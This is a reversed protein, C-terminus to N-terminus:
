PLYAVVQYTGTPSAPQTAYAIEEFSAASLTLQTRSVMTGRADTVEVEIPLGTLSAKWDATRTIIGLHATEGPRYIGRDSLRYASLQERARANEVGGTDFRSFNLERGGSNLPMFSFDNDKQAIILDPLRERRMDPTPPPLHAAGTANTTAGLVPLGNAGVLEI